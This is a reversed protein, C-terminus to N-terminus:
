IGHNYEDTPVWSTTSMLQQELHWLINGADSQPFLSSSTPM